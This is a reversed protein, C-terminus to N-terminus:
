QRVASHTLGLEAAVAHPSRGSERILRVVEAKYEKTFTRRTRKGTEKSMKRRGM